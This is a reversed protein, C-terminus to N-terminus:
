VPGPQRRLAIRPEHAYARALERLRRHEPRDPPIYAECFLAIIPPPLNSSGEGAPATRRQCDQCEELWDDPGDGCGPCYAIPDDVTVM